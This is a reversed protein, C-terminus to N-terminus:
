CYQVVLHQVSDEKSVKYLLLPKLIFFVCKWFKVFFSMELVPFHGSM